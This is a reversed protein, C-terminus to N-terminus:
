RHKLLVCYSLSAGVSVVLIVFFFISHEFEHCPDGIDVDEPEEIFAYIADSANANFLVSSTNILLIRNHPTQM